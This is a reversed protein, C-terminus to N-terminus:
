EKVFPQPDDRKFVTLPPPTKLNKWAEYGDFNERIEKEVKGSILRVKIGMPCADECAGCETCRGATHFARILHYSLVDSSDQSKGCWQPSSKDVFCEPCYCLPCADRCAYCRICPSLLNDIFEAREESSMAEVAKIKEYRVPDEQENVKEAALEDFLVPNRVTCRDCNRSMVDSRNMTVEFGKGKATVYLDNETAETIEGPVAAMIKRPDLMGTCPMGIIYINNSNVQKEQILGVVNRSVCGQAIVATRKDGMRSLYSALNGVCNGDWVLLDAEKSNRAFYPVNKLPITGKKFGIVVDVKHKDLLKKAIERIKNTRANM